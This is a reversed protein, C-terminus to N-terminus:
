SIGRRVVVKVDVMDVVVLYDEEVMEVRADVISIVVMNNM